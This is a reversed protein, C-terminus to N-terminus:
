RCVDLGTTFNDFGFGFIKINKDGVLVVSGIDATDRSVRYLTMASNGSDLGYGKRTVKVNDLRAGSPSFVQISWTENGDVDALEFSLNKVPEVYKVRFSIRKSELAGTTTMVRKGAHEPDKDFCLRNFNPKGKCKVSMWAKPHAEGENQEVIPAVILDGGLIPEFTVGYDRALAENQSSISTGPSLHEFTLVGSQYTSTCPTPTPTVTPTATPEPAAETGVLATATNSFRGATTRAVLRRRNADVMELLNVRGQQPVCQGEKPPGEVDLAAGGRSACLSFVVHTVGERTDLTWERNSKCEPAVAWTGQTEGLCGSDILKKTYILANKIQEDSQLNAVTRAGEHVALKSVTFMALTGVAVLAAAAVSLSLVVSGRPHRRYIKM